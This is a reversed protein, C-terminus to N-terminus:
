GSSVRTLFWHDKINSSAQMSIKKKLLDELRRVNSGGKGIAKGIENEEVIFILQEEGSICDKLRARTLNEFLQMFKMLNIDYKIKSM